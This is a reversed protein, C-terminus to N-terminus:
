LSAGLGAVGSFRTATTVPAAQSNVLPAYALQGPGRALTPIAGSVGALVVPVASWKIGDYSVVLQFNSGLPLLLFYNGTVCALAVPGINETSGNGLTALLTWTVADPSTYIHAIGGAQSVLMWRDRVDDWALDMVDDTSTAVTNASWTVGDTTSYAVISTGSQAPVAVAQTGNSRLAWENATIGSQNANFGPSGSTLITGLKAGGATSSGVAAVVTTGIAAARYDTCTSASTATITTFTGGPTALRWHLLTSAGFGTAWVSGDSAVTMCSPAGGSVPVAFATWNGDGTGYYVTWSSPPGSNYGIVLWQEFLPEDYFTMAYPGFNEPWNAPAAWTLLAALAIRAKLWATNNMVGQVPTNIVTANPSPSDDPQTITGVFTDPNGEYTSM